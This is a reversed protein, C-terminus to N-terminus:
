EGGAAAQQQRRGICYLHTKTRIFLRGDSVALSAQSPEGLENHAMEKYGRGPRVVTTNGQDNLLYIRGDAYVPSASYTGELRQTYIIEGTSPEMCQLIGNEKVSYLLGDALLLSPIMPVGKKQEWLLNQKTVEGKGGLRFARIAAYPEGTPFGSSTYAIGDGFIPSPTVGEGGSRVWWIREGTDPDFGGFVDGGASVLQPKGDVEVIRPTMHGIRSKGRMAKYRERGTNKDLAWVYSKDWATQWGIKLDPGERISHDWPMLLLDKYLIPSAGLGHQSYFHNDTNRWAVKGGFDVAAAGGGGFFAYIRQGDTVPTPTSLSNREQKRPTNQKFVEVDWLVKGTDRDFATVHCSAGDDRASTLFVHKEWVIPSSWGEGPLDAKWAVNSDRGWEVPLGKESSVGQGTPGRFGPWNEARGAAGFALVAVAMIVLTHFRSCIMLKRRRRLHADGGPPIILM